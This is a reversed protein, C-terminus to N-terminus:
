RAQMHDSLVNRLRYIEENSVVYYWVGGMMRGSGEIMEKTQNNRTGRYDFFLRRLTEMEVNTQANEGAADLIPNVKTFSEVSVAKDIFADIVKQQRDNRGLDGRPDEKRIRTYVLAEEGNLSLEGKPFDYQNRTLHIDNQVTIGGMADVVDVLGEMNIKAYYHITTDLLNEVTKVSLDSGGFAYAHNIKDMGVGPIEVYTDRPINFKLMENTHPNLSLLMMTDSRGKDGEREDVGLLLVNISEKSELATEQERSADSELPTYMAEVTDGVKMYLYTAFAILGALLIASITLIIKRKNKKEKRREIRSTM